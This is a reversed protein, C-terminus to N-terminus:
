TSAPAPRHSANLGDVCNPRFSRGLPQLRRAQRRLVDDFPSANLWVEQILLSGAYGEALMGLKQVEGSLGSIPSAKPQFQGCLLARYEPLYRGAQRMLWWPTPSVTEGNLARLLPKLQPSVM